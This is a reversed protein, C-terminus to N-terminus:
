IYIAQIYEIVKKERKKTYVVYFHKATKVKSVLLEFLTIIM